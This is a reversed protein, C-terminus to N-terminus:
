PEEGLPPSPFSLDPSTTRAVLAGCVCLLAFAVCAILGAPRTKADHRVALMYVPKSLAASVDPNTANLNSNHRQYLGARDPSPVAGGANEPPTTPTREALSRLDICSSNSALLRHHLNLFKGTAHRVIAGSGRFHHAVRHTPASSLLVNSMCHLCYRTIQEADDLLADGHVLPTGCEDLFGKIRVFSLLRALEDEDADRPQEARWPKARARPPSLAGQHCGLTADEEVDCWESCPYLPLLPAHFAFDPLPLHPYLALVRRLPRCRSVDMVINAATFGCPDVYRASQVLNGPVPDFLLLCLSLREADYGALRQALMLAACGGRSLGVCVLRVHGRGQALLERVRAEVAACQSSLGVAWITGCAGFAVGCGDFGMKFSTEGDDPTTIPDSLDEARVLGFFLGLQTTINSDDDFLPNSTGEFFVTLVCDDSM